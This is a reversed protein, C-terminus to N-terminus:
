KKLKEIKHGIGVFGFGALIICLGEYLANADFPDAILAQASRVVGTAIAGITAVWTKWGTMMSDGGKM